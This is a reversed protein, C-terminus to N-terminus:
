VFRDAINRFFVFKIAQGCKGWPSRQSGSAHHPRTGHPLHQSVQCPRQHSEVHPEDEQRLPLAPARLLGGRFEASAPALSRGRPHGRSRHLPIAGMGPFHSPPLGRACFATLWVSPPSNWRFPSFSGGSLQYSLQRQYGSVSFSRCEHKKFSIM